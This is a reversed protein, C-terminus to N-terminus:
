RVRPDTITISLFPGPAQLGAARTSGFCRVPLEWHCVRTCTPM